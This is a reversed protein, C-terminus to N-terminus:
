QVRVVFGLHCAIALMRRKPPLIRHTTACVASQLLGNASYLWYKCYAVDDPDCDHSLRDNNEARGSCCKIQEFGFTLLLIM